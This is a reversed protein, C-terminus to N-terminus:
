ESSFNDEGQRVAKLEKPSMLLRAHIMALLPSEQPMDSTLADELAKM